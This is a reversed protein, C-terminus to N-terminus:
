RDSGGAYRRLLQAGVRQSGVAERASALAAHWAEQRAMLEDRAARDADSAVPSIEAVADLIAQRRSAIEGFAVLLADVTADAPPTPTVALLAAILEGATV